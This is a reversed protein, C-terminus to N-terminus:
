QLSYETGATAIVLESEDDKEVRVNMGSFGIADEVEGAVRLLDDPRGNLARYEVGQFWVSRGEQLALLIRGVMDALGWILEEETTVLSFDISWRWGHRVTASIFEQPDTVSTVDRVQGAWPGTLITLIIM